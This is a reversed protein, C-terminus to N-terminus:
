LALNKLQPCFYFLEPVLHDSSKFILPLFAFNFELLGLTLEFPVVVFLELFKLRLDVVVLLFNQVVNGFFTLWHTESVIRVNRSREVRELFDRFLLVRALSGLKLLSDFVHFLRYDLRLVLQETFPHLLALELLLEVDDIFSQISFLLVIKEVEFVQLVDVGHQISFPDRNGDIEFGFGELLCELVVCFVFDNIGYTELLGELHDALLGQRRLAPVVELHDSLLDFCAGPVDAHDSFSSFLEIGYYRHVIQSVPRQSDCIATVPEQELSPVNRLPSDPVVNKLLILNRNQYVPLLLLDAPEDIVLKLKRSGQRTLEHVLLRINVNLRPVVVILNPNQTLVLDVDLIVFNM